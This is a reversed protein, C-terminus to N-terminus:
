LYDGNKLIAMTDYLSLGVVNSYSGAMYKVFPAALGQIAYAGAKGQWEQSDIYDEIEQANLPKFQIMTDCARTLVKGKPTVLAIGGYVRHRRGSLKQLHARAQNADDVKDLIKPGCAVVTDAALVFCDPKQEVVAQAKSRALRLALDKPKEGKQPTEDIDPSLVADPTLNIQKLLELRRPSASALVLKYKNKSMM